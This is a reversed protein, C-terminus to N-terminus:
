NGQFPSGRAILKRYLLQYQEAVSEIRFNEVTKYARSASKSRLNQNQLLKILMNAIAEPRRPPVLWGNEGDQILEDTGPIDTALVPVGCAMSELIVTPLGEYISPLIFIKMHRLLSIADDRQGTFLVHESIGLRNVRAQLENRLEGDGIIVLYIDPIQAIVLPMAELLYEYGKQKTLRGISGVITKGKANELLPHHSLPQQRTEFIDPYIANHVLVPDKQAIMEGPHRSLKDVVAQSVGAEQDLFIPYLWNTFVQRCVWSPFGRGWELSVHATRMAVITRSLFKLLIAAFTGMQFHSHIIDLPESQYLHSLRQVALFYERLNFRGKWEGPFIVPVHEKALKKLWYSEAESAFKWFACLTIDFKDKDLNRSLELGFREAGGHAGGIDLGAIMILVRLLHDPNTEAM